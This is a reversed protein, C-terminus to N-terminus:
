QVQLLIETKIANYLQINERQIIKYLKFIALYSGFCTAEILTKILLHQTQRIHTPKKTSM